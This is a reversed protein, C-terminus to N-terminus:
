KVCIIKETSVNGGTNIVLFFVGNSPVPINYKHDGGVLFGSEITSIKEGLLNYLSIDVQSSQKLTFAATTQSQFPNPYVGVQSINKVETIGVDTRSTPYISSSNAIYNFGKFATDTSSVTFNYTSDLPLGAIEVLMQYIGNDLGTFKYNGNVDTQTHTVINSTPHPKRGVSIDIGHIPDGVARTKLNKYGIGQSLNGSVDGLGTQPVVEIMKITDVIISNCAGTILKAGIWTMSDGIYTPVVNPYVTNDVEIKVIYSSDPESGFYYTGTNTLQVSDVKPMQSNKKYLYLVARTKTTTGSLNGGSYLVQGNIDLVCGQTIPNRKKTVSNQSFLNLSIMAAIAFIISKTKM